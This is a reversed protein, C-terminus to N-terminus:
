EDNVHKEKTIIAPPQYGGPIVYAPSPHQAKRVRENVVGLNIKMRYSYMFIHKSAFQEWTARRKIVPMSM